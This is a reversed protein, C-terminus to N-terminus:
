PSGLIVVTADGTKKVAFGGGGGRGKFLRENKEEKLRAIKAKLKGLHHETGKHAPTAAIEKELRGIIEEIGEGKTVVPKIIM